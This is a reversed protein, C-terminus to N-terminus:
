ISGFLDNNKLMECSREIALTTRNSLHYIKYMALVNSECCHLARMAPYVSRLLTYLAKWFTKNEIDMIASQVRDDLNLYYSIAQHITALLPDHLRVLRMMAYFYTSFMTGSGRLLGIRKGNNHVGSQQIFQAYIGHAAGSGFVNYMRCVKLILIQLLNLTICYLIITSFSVFFIFACM